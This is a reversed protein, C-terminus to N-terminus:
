FDRTGFISSIWPLFAMVIAILGRVLLTSRNKSTQMIIQREIQVVLFVSILGGIMSGPIGFHLYRNTFAYGIFFWIVSIILLASTFRKVEKASVESCQTLLNYNYGTLFCGFKLWWNKMTM